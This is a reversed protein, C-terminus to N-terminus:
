GGGIVVRMGSAPTWRMIDMDFLFVRAGMPIKMASKYDDSKPKAEAFLFLVWLLDM